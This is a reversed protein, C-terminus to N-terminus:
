LVVFSNYIIYVHAYYITSDFDISIHLSNSLSDKFSVDNESDIRAAIKESEILRMIEIKLEMFEMNFASAMKRINVISYPM